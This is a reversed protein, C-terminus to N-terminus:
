NCLVVRKEYKMAERLEVEPYFVGVKGKLILCFRDLYNKDYFREGASVEVLEFCRCLDLLDQDTFSVLSKYFKMQEFLSKM